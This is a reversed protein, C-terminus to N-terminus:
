HWLLTAPDLIIRFHSAGCGHPQHMACAEPFLKSWAMQVALELRGGSVAEDYEPPLKM